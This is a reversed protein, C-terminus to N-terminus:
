CPADAPLESRLGRALLASPLEALRHRHPCSTSLSGHKHFFWFLASRMRGAGHRWSCRVDGPVSEAPRWGRPTGPGTGPVMLPTFLRARDRPAHSPGRTSAQSCVQLLVSAPGPLRAEEYAPQLPESSLAPRPAPSGSVSCRVAGKRGGGPHQGGLTCGTPEGDKWRLYSAAEPTKWLMFKERPDRVLDTDQGRGKTFSRRSDRSRYSTDEGLLGKRM